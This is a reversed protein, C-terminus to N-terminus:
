SVLDTMTDLALTSTENLIIEIPLDSNSVYITDTRSLEHTELVLISM